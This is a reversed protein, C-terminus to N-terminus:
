LNVTLGHLLQALAWGVTDETPRAEARCPVPSPSVFYVDLSSPHLRSPLREPPSSLGRCVGGCGCRGRSRARRRSDTSHVALLDSAVGSILSGSDFTAQRSCAPAITPPVAALKLHGLMQTIVAEKTIVAMTRLSGRQCLPCTAM